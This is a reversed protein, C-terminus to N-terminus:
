KSTVKIFIVKQFEKLFSGLGIIWVVFTIVYGIRLKQVVKCHPGRPVEKYTVAFYSLKKRGLTERKIGSFVDSFRVNRVRLGQFACM